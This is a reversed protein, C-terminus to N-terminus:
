KGKATGERRPDAAGTLAGDAGILIAHLGSNLNTIKVKHGQAQLGDSLAAADTGEELDTTGNRNVVHGRALAQDLPLNWDLVAIIARAVYNIIRSGGPSGILLVPTGDKLVVTPAMSSRPRKGAEVRNAVPKGDQEPTFSFDTLENNLLFGHTMVRSGFGTEITTTFSVMNGAGDVIVMHSTGPRDPTQDPALRGEKVPPPTGALAKETVADPRILKARAAMYTPDLLGRTPVGVYDSDAMYLGRDAYALKAAEIFLHESELGPGMDPLPFPALLMLIQGVTLGGSSPPGMGCVEYARYPACVPAREIVRYGALDELTLLGPNVYTKVAAVLDRAIPGKYFPASGEAALTKLTAAFAPNRLITGAAKPSGDAEFFYAKTAPFLNLKRDQAAAISEALRASIPFGKEALAITPAFLRSWALKGHRQHIEELLKLTGPVGVSRGGVVADWFKVKNDAEDLWFAPTAAAPATERGDFSTLKQQSADWYLLFGGGGIGSSQPEVLNLMLQAAIAADAASGGEALVDYATEVALPNAAAVMFERGKAINAAHRAFTEEPQGIEQALVPRAVNLTIACCIFFWFLRM